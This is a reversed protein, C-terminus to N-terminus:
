PRQFYIIETCGTENAPSFSSHTSVFSFYCVPFINVVDDSAAPNTMKGHTVLTLRINNREVKTIIAAKKIEMGRRFSSFNVNDFPIITYTELKIDEM